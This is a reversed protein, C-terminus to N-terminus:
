AMSWVVQGGALVVSSVLFLDNMLSWESGAVALWRGSAAWVESSVVWWGDCMM